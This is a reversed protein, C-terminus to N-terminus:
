ATRNRARVAKPAQVGLFRNARRVSARIVRVAPAFQPLQKIIHNM